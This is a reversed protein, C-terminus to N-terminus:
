ECRKLNVNWVYNPPCKPMFKEHEKKLNYNDIFFITSVILILIIQVIIRVKLNNLFNIKNRLIRTLYILIIIIPIIINFLLTINFNLSSPQSCPYQVCEVVGRTLALSLWIFFYAPLILFVDYVIGWIKNKSKQQITNVQQIQKEMNNM